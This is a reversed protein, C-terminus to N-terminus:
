GNCGKLVDYTRMCQYRYITMTAVGASIGLVVGTSSVSAISTEFTIWTGGPHLTSYRFPRVWVYM